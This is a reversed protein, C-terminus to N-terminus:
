TQSGKSRMTPPTKRANLDRRLLKVERVLALTALAQAGAASDTVEKSAYLVQYALLEPDETLAHPINPEDTLGAM